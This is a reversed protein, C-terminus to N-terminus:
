ERFFFQFFINNISIEICTVKRTAWDTLIYALLRHTAPEFSAGQKKFDRKNFKIFANKPCINHIKDIKLVIIDDCEVTYLM